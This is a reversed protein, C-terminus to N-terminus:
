LDQVEQAFNWEIRILLTLFASPVDRGPYVDPVPPAVVLFFLKPITSHFKKLFNLNIQTLFLYSDKSFPNKVAAIFTTYYYYCFGGRRQNKM